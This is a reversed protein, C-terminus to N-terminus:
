TAAQERERPKKNGRNIWGRQIKEGKIRIVSKGGGHENGTGEGTKESKYEKKGPFEQTLAM